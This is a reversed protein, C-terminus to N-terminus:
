RLPIVVRGLRAVAGGKGERQAAERERTTEPLARGMGSMWIERLIYEGGYRHFVLRPADERESTRTGMVVAGDRRGRIIFAQGGISAITYRGSPLVKEQVSFGFPVRTEIDAAQAPVAVAAVAGLLTTGVLRKLTKKTM